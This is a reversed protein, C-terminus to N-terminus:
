FNKTKLKNDASKKCRSKYKLLNVCDPNTQTPTAYVQFSPTSPSMNCNYILCFINKLWLTELRDLETNANAVHQM